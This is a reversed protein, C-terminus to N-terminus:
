FFIFLCKSHIYDPCVCPRVCRRAPISNIHREENVEHYNKRFISFCMCKCDYSSKSERVKIRDITKFMSILYRFPIYNLYKTLIM